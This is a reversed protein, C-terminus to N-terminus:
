SEAIIVKQLAYIDRAVLVMQMHHQLLVALLAYIPQAVAAVLQMTIHEPVVEVM